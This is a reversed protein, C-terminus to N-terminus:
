RKGNSMIISNTSSFTPTSRQCFPNSRPSPLTGFATLLAKREGVYRVTVKAAKKRARPEILDRSVCHTQIRQWFIRSAPRRLALASSPFFERGASEYTECYESQEFDFDWEMNPLDVVKWDGEM